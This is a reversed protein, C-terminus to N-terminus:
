DIVGPAVLTAFMRGGTSINIGGDSDELIAFLQYTSGADCFLIRQASASNLDINVTNTTQLFPNISMGTTQNLVLTVVGTGNNLGNIVASYGILYLGATDVRFTDPAIYTIGVSSVTPQFNLINVGPNLLLGDLSFNANVPDFTDGNEGTPGTPGTAGTPGRPGTPGTPGPPCKRRHYHHHHDSSSHTLLRGDKSVSVEEAQLTGFCLFFAATLYIFSSHKTM